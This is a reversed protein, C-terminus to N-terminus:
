LKFLASLLKCVLARFGWARMQFTVSEAAVGPLQRFSFLLDSAGRVAGSNDGGFVGPLSM